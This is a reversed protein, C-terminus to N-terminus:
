EHTAHEKFGEPEIQIPGHHIGFRNHLADQLNKLPPANPQGDTTVVHVSLCEM